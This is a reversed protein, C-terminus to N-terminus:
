AFAVAGEAQRHEHLRPDEAITGHREALVTSREDGVCSSPCPQGSSKLTEGRRRAVRLRGCSRRYECHPGLPRPAFPGRECEGIEM